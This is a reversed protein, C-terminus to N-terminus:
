LFLGTLFGAIAGVIGGATSGNPGSVGAAYGSAAGQFAQILHLGGSVVAVEDGSLERFDSSYLEISTAQM